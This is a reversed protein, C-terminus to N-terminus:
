PLPVTADKGYRPKHATAYSHIEGGLYQKLVPEAGADMWGSVHQCSSSPLQKHASIVFIFSVCGRCRLQENDSTAKEHQIIVEFSRIFAYNSKVFCNKSFPISYKFICTVRSIFLVQYKTGCGANNFCHKPISLTSHTLSRYVMRDSVTLQTITPSNTLM